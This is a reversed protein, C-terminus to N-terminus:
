KEKYKLCNERDVIEDQIRGEFAKRFIFCNKAYRKCSKCKNEFEEAQKWDDFIGVFDTPHITLEIRPNKNDYMIKLIRNCVCNDDLWVCKSETISDAILKDYNAADMDIRPFYFVADVYYHQYPNESMVWSQKKVEQKVYETFKKKFRQAEATKYSMATPKGNKFVVRYALYHNVSIFDYVTLRLEQQRPKEM